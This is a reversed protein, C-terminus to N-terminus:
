MNGDYNSVKRIIYEDNEFYDDFEISYNDQLLEKKIVFNMINKRLLMVM